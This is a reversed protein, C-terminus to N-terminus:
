AAVRQQSEFGTNEGAQTIFILVWLEPMETAYQIKQSLSFDDCGVSACVANIGDETTFNYGRKTVFYVPVGVELYKYLYHFYDLMYSGQVFFGLVRKKPWTLRPTWLCQNKNVCHHKRVKPMALEQDLGVTVHFMLYLSGCLMFIFVLMQPYFKVFIWNFGKQM